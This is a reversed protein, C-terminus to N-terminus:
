GGGGGAYMQEVPSMSAPQQQQPRNAFASIGGAIAGAADAFGASRAQEGMLNGQNVTAATSNTNNASNAAHGTELNAINTATTPQALNGLLNMYNTYYSDERGQLAGTAVGRRSLDNNYAREERGALDQYFQMQTNASAERLAEGRRGSYLSGSNAAYQNVNRATEDQMKRYAPNNQYDMGFQPTPAELDEYYREQFGAGPGTVGARDQITQITQIGGPAGNGGMYAGEEMGGEAGGPGASVGFKPSGDVNRGVITRGDSTTSGVAGREGEPAVWKAKPIQSPDFQNFFDDRYRADISGGTFNTSYQGGGEGPPLTGANQKEKYEKGKRTAAVWDNYTFAGRKGDEKFLGLPDLGAKKTVGTLKGGDLYGSGAGKKGSTLAHNLGGADAERGLIDRYAQKVAEESMPQNGDGFLDERSKGATGLAAPATALQPAGMSVYGPGGGGGGGGLGLQAMMQNRAMGEQDAYPQLRASGMAIGQDLRAQAEAGANASLRSADKAADASKNSSYIAGGAAVAAAAVAWPM